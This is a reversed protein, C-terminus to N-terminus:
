GAKLEKIFTKFKEDSMYIRHYKKHNVFYWYRFDKQLGRYSYHVYDESTHRLFRNIHGLLYLWGKDKLIIVKLM